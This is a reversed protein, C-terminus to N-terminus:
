VFNATYLPRERSLLCRAQVHLSVTHACFVFITDVLRLLKKGMMVQAHLRQRSLKMVMM